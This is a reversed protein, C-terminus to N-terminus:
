QIIEVANLGSESSMRSAGHLELVSVREGVRVAAATYTTGFDIALAYGQTM